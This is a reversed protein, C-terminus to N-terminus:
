ELVVARELTRQVGNIRVHSSIGLALLTLLILLILYKM